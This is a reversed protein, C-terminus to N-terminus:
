DDCVVGGTGSTRPAATTSPAFAPGGASPFPQGGAAVAVLDPFARMLRDVQAQDLIPAIGDAVAAEQEETLLGEARLFGIGASDEYGLQLVQDAVPEIPPDQLLTFAGVDLLVAREERREAEAETIAGAELLVDAQAASLRFWGAPTAGDEIAKCTADVEVSTTTPSGTDLQETGDGGRSTVVALGALVAVVAAAGVVIGRTRVQRRRQEIAAAVVSSRTVATGDVRGATEHMRAGLREAFAADDTGATARADPDQDENM